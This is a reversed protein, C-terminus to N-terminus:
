VTAGQVVPAVEVPVDPLPPVDKLAPLPLPAPPPIPSLPVALNIGAIVHAAGTASAHYLGAAALVSLLASIVLPRYIPDVVAMAALIALAVLALTFLQASSLKPM